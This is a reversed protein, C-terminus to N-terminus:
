QLEIDDNDDASALKQLEQQLWQKYASVKLKKAPIASTFTRIQIKEEEKEKKVVVTKILSARSIELETKKSNYIEIFSLMESYTFKSNNDKVDFGLDIVTQTRQDAYQLIVNVKQLVNNNLGEPLKNIENILDNADSKLQIYKASVIKNADQFLSHYEDKVKQVLQQLAVFNKVVENTYLLKFDVTLKEITRNSTAAKKLEDNVAEVFLKWDRVKQLNNRIFKEHKEIAQLAILYNEKGTLFDQAKDIYNAESVAGTYQSLIEKQSEISSFLTDFDKNQIRMDNVKDCFRKALDRIAKVLEFDNTNYDVKKGIHIEIEFDLLFQAIDQKQSASLAKSIAKFSANRFRTAADFVQKIGQDKWSFFDEGNYKAIVKGARMLAALTSIVTGYQFNTPPIFLDNEITRGDVYTNRIKYLIEEVVKLNSGIFNGNSDFFQFDNGHFYQQLRSNNNEQIIIPAISDNLQSSLRKHYVNQVIQRQQSQIITQWNDKTLQYINYLYIASAQLLSQEILNKLTNEKESKAVSFSRLIQGEDSKPDTYKQELYTTREIEDILKDIEKFSNNDPVICVVDKDNQHQVKLIEIDNTRDDSINYVSKLKIKLQKASPTTLEDDNDTTIYFDYTTGTDTIRALNKIFGSSKYASVVQKKKVYSQVTFENMEDLLRQEIDSTIRYTNNTDLLVKADTLIELANIIEVQIKHFDEPDKIYSKVINALTTPIVEAESLFHITELLKRGSVPSHTERLIREANDYRSVLRVPPQPQAEKAIQWGTAVEYLSNNQLEQKLIDYTTIIMGRAAVKTSAYGKTGFLFNQLLDFQYKYFPYYTIYADLSDTKTIGSGILAAHDSIKGSNNKYHEKLNGIATETKRLLRNRIIVDVETAELHIKTKFRDTVKTLQAKSINSNNIVDDLKEQAIAITWVKGGLSSLSESLGELDLLTFKKQNIAESAEDFLFIIEEGKNIQLYNNLEEKLRSSSFQDIDRRITEMLNSYDSESNGKQLYINKSAKVYEVLRSKIDIWDKNINQFIFDHINLQKDNLMLQYLFIGHENEPLELSKLFSRFLTFSLGKQTDQKAVDLFVVRCNFSNLKSISNKVLAENNIGTFRQLIRDRAPTGAIIRNSLMYGLLKGFYSKGSGYFGSLWVGTETINSVFTTVFKDYESALGDTIIYNEIEAQIEVESFDELDIVNKIDESLDITLIDKIQM